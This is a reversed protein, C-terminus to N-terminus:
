HSLRLVRRPGPVHLLTTSLVPSCNCMALKAGASNTSAPGKGHCRYQKQVHAQGFSQIAQEGGGAGNKINSSNFGYFGPQSLLLVLGSLKAGM